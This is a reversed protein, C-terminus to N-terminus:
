VMWLTLWRAISAFPVSSPPPVNWTAATSTSRSSSDTWISRSKSQSVGDVCPRAASTAARRTPSAGIPASCASAVAGGEPAGDDAHEEVALQGTAEPCAGPREDRLAM